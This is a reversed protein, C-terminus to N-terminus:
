RAIRSSHPSIHMRSSSRQVAWGFPLGLRCCAVSFKPSCVASLEPNPMFYKDLDTNILFSTFTLIATSENESQATRLVYRVSPDARWLSRPAPTAGVRGPFGIRTLRMSFVISMKKERWTGIMGSRPKSKSHWDTSHFLLVINDSDFCYDLLKFIIMSVLQYRAQAWPRKPSTM